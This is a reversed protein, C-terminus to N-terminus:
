TIDVIYQTLKRYVRRMTSRDKGMRRAIHGWSKEEVARMVFIQAEEPTMGKTLAAKIDALRDIAADIEKDLECIKEVACQLKDERSGGGPAKSYSPTSSTARAWLEARRELLRNITKHLAKAEELM